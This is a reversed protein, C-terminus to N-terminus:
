EFTVLKAGAEVTDGLKVHVAAVKCAAKAKVENEMKMAEVILVAAGAAVEDGPAVMVKIIRGPMPCKILKDQATGSGRKAHAALRQRESEVRVYSRHGSAVAGVDPPTGELTLDVVKGDVLVSLQPGTRAVDVQVKRGNVLVELAGSPLERVDVHLANQPAEPDLEVHYRM